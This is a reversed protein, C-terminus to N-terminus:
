KLKDFRFYYEIQKVLSTQLTTPDPGKMFVGVPPPAFYTHGLFHDPPPPAPIYYMSGPVAIM